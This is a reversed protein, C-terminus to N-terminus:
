LEDWEVCKPREGSQLFERAASRGLATPIVYKRPFETHHQLSIYCTLLPEIDLSVGRSAYYPPEGHGYDFGLVTDEGGVAIMLTDGNEARLSVLNLLSRARAEEAAQTLVRDLVDTSEVLEPPQGEHVTVLM